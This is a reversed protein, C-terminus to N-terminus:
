PEVKLGMYAKVDNRSLLYFSLGHILLNSILVVQFGIYGIGLEPFPAFPSYITGSIAGIIDFAGVANWCLVLAWLIQSPKKIIQFGLIIAFLGIMTDGGFAVGWDGSAARESGIFIWILNIIGGIFRYSM